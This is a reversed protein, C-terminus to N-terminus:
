SGYSARRWAGPEDGTHCGLEAFVPWMDSPAAGTEVRDPWDAADRKCIRKCCCISARSNRSRGRRDAIKYNGLQSPSVIVYNRVAIM